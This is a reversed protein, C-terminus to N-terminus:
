QHDRYIKNYLIWNILMRALHCIIFISLFAISIHRYGLWHLFLFGALGLVHGINITAKSVLLVRNARAWEEYRGQEKLERRIKEFRMRSHAGRLGFVLLGFLLSAFVVVGILM